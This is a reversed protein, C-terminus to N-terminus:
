EAAASQRVDYCLLVDQDRLYLRGNAIVPYPWSPNSSRDPQDFRAKEVYEKPNAEVLAVPGRESRAYLCGDAYTLSGKGVSRNFWMIKGTKFEICTLNSQDFGYLYDGILVMGGHHNQMQKTFYVEAATVGDAGATLRALGGGNQYASAAFVLNDRYIPTSCNIGNRCAPADYRWLFKGDKAAVGIVGKALFQIYEKQGSVDAVICSSYSVNNSSPVLSKWIVDGSNKNLAVVTADPGGPTALVKEGDVLPSESFGWMPVRGGFDAVLSKKWRPKGDAAALCVLDGSVGLTYILDGDVTPTARPGNGGQTGVLQAGAAIRTHWIEKGTRADLAWVVEEGGRLGMGFIRGKAISPTTYGEGLGTAKWALKPGEAPWSKLLGTERSVGTRDPGRFQPWDAAYVATGLLGVLFWLATWKAPVTTIRVSRKGTLGSRKMMM